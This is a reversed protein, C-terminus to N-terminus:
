LCSKRRSIETGIIGFLDEPFNRRICIGNSLKALLSFAVECARRAENVHFGLKQEVNPILLPGPRLTQM